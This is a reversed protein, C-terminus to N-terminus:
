RAEEPQATGSGIPAAQEAAAKEGMMVRVEHMQKDDLLVIEDHPQAVGDLEIITAM